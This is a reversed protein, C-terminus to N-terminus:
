SQKLRFWLLDVSMQHSTLRAQSEVRARLEGTPSLFRNPDGNVTIVVPNGVTPASTSWVTEWTANQVNRLLLRQTVGSTTQRPAFSVDLQRVTGVVVSGSAEFATVENKGKRRSALTLEVGDDVALASVDGSSSQADIIQLSSLALTADPAGAVPAVGYTTSLLGSRNGAADYAVARLQWTGVGLTLPGTYPVGNVTPDGGDLRYRIQAGTESTLGVEVSGEYSGGPRTATPTPPPTTDVVERQGFELAASKTPDSNSRIPAIMRAGNSGLPTTAQWGRPTLVELRFDTNAGVQFTAVGASDTFVTGLPTRTNGKAAYLRVSRGGLPEENVDNWIGDGDHDHFVRASVTGPQIAGRSIDATDGARTPPIAVSQWTPPAL